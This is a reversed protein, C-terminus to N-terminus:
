QIYSYNVVLVELDGNGNAAGLGSVQGADNCETFIWQVTMAVDKCLSETEEVGEPQFLVVATNMRLKLNYHENGAEIYNNANANCENNGIKNLYDFAEIVDNVDANSNYPFCKNELRKSLGSEPAPERTEFEPTKTDFAESSLDLEPFSPLGDDLIIEPYSTAERAAINAARPVSAANTFALPLLLLTTLLSPFKTM